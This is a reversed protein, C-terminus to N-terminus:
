SPRTTKISRSTSNLRSKDMISLKIKIPWWNMFEIKYIVRIENGFVSKNKMSLNFSKCKKM